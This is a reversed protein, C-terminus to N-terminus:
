KGKGDGRPPAGGGTTVTGGLAASMAGGSSMTVICPGERGVFLVCRPRNFEDFIFLGPQSGGASKLWAPQTGNADTIVEAPGNRLAALMALPNGDDGDLVYRGARIATVNKRGEDASLWRAVPVDGFAGPFTKVFAVFLSALSLM